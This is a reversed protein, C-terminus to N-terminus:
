KLAAEILGPLGALPKLVDDALKHRVGFWRADNITVTAQGPAPEWVLVKLPLDIAARPATAMLPTGGKPNGLVILKTNRLSLGARTAEGSHDIRAFITLGRAKATEEIKAVTEDVSYKSAIDVLGSDATQASVAQALLWVSLMVIHPTRLM